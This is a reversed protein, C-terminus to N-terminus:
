QDAFPDDDDDEFSGGDAPKSNAGEDARTFEQRRPGREARDEDPPRDDRERRDDREDRRDRAPPRRRDSDEGFDDDTHSFSRDDRRGGGGGGRDDGAESRSQLSQVSDAVVEVWKQRQGDRDKYEDIQCRGDVAVLNGRHLYRIVFEATQRFCVVNFFDTEREADRGRPRRDVAIRFRGITNGDNSQREEPDATLRGVLVIRNVM